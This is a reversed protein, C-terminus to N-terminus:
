SPFPLEQDNFYFLMDMIWGILFLGGSLFWIVGTIWYGNYMRYIGNLGIFPLFMLIKTILKRKEKDDTM